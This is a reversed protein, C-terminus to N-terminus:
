RERPATSPSALRPPRPGGPQRFVCDGCLGGGPARYYLCCTSRAFSLADLSGTGRLQGHDLLTATLERTLRAQSTLKRELCWHTLQGLTGGLASAANGWLLRESVRSVQRTATALPALHGDHVLSILGTTLEPASAPSADGATPPPLLWLDDPTSGRPDWYLRSANLDPVRGELVTPALTISWIRAALGLYAISAAVREETTGLKRRVRSVREALADTDQEYVTALAVAGKPVREGEVLTRLAFFGGLTAAPSDETAPDM